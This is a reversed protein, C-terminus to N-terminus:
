WISNYRIRLSNTIALPVLKPFRWVLRVGATLRFLLQNSFYIVRGPRINRFEVIFIGSPVDSCWGALKGKGKGMRSGKIKRTIPLHPFLNFWVYRLTRDSRKYARKLFLKYRFLQRSNLKIPQLLLLGSSGFSLNSGRFFHLSRSKHRGKFTFKRPRM